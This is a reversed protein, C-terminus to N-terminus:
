SMSQFVHCQGPHFHLGLGVACAPSALLKLAPCAFSGWFTKLYVGSARPLSSKLCGSITNPVSVNLFPRTTARTLKLSDQTLKLSRSAFFIAAAGLLFTISIAIGAELGLKMAFVIAAIGIITIWYWNRHFWSREMGDNYWM